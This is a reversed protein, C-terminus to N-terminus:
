IGSGPIRFEQTQTTKAQTTQAKNSSITSTVIVDGEKLGSIIETSLDNSIGIEVSQSKPPSSLTVGSANVSLQQKMEESAEILEVYHSNGQSKVAGNPVVLVNQKAETIIDAAVSMGPKVREDDADFAIKVGYSVVGQSVTGMTDIELVKGSITIEPLADFTITAKQGVKIKAADVENLSIEAIKQQTIFTALVTAASVSDGKKISFNVEAIVGDFPAYISCDALKEKVDLLADEKQEAALENSQISLPTTIQVTQEASSLNSLHTNIKNTYTSLNSLYTDIIPDVTLNQSKLDEEYLHILNDANKIAESIFKATQYTEEILSKITEEDSFRTALKYDTLNKEYSSEANHYPKYYINREYAYSETYNTYNMYVDINSYFSSIDEGFLISQLGPVIVKFDLFADTIKDFSEEYAEKLDNKAQDLSIKATESYSKADRLTRQADLDDLQMLLTGTKVEQGNKMGIYAIEGSVAPKIDIQNSVSVQGSGSVSVIVTGKEVAATVYRVVNKNKVLGQYSFYGGIIILVLIVATILKYRFMQKFLKTLM